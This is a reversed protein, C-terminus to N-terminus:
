ITQNARHVQTKLKEEVFHIMETTEKLEELENRLIMRGLDPQFYIFSYGFPGKPIFRVIQLQFVKQKVALQFINVVNPPHIVEKYEAVKIRTGKGSAILNELTGKLALNKRGANNTVFTGKGRDRYILGEKTLESLAQRVTVRSIHYEQCLGAESPLRERAKLQNSLIQNKIINKLQFYLPTPGQDLIM